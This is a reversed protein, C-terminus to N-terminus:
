RETDVLDYGTINTYAEVIPGVRKSLEYDVLTGFDEAAFDNEEIPGVLQM